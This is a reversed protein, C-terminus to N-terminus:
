VMIKSLLNDDYKSCMIIKHAGVALSVESLQNIKAASVTKDAVTPPSFRLVRQRERERTSLDKDREKRARCGM